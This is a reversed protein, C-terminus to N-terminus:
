KDLSKKTVLITSCFFSIYILFARSVILIVEVNLSIDLLKNGWLQGPSFIRGFLPLLIIISKFNPLFYCFFTTLQIEQCFWFQWIDGKKLQKRSLLRIKRRKKQLINVGPSMDGVQTPTLHILSALHEREPASLYKQQKFRRELEYVQSLFILLLSNRHTLSTM